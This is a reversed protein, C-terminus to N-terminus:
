AGPSTCQLWDLPIVRGWIIDGVSTGAWGLSDRVSWRSICSETPESLNLVTPLSCKEDIM